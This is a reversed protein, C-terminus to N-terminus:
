IYRELALAFAERRVTALDLTKMPSKAQCALDRFTTFDHHGVLVQAADHMAAADLPKSSSSSSAPAVPTTTAPGRNFIWILGIIVIVAVVIIIWTNRNM